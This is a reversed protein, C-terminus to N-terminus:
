AKFNYIPKIIDVIDVTDTILNTISEIPKYAMPCESLTSESVSTTYIGAKQMTEAFEEVTFKDKAGSRSFLRGAGHPASFNWDPNSKGTCILSGDRMNIPILVRQNQYAAIAGKRLIMDNPDIYNHVTDFSEVETGIHNLILNAITRRNLKAYEQTIQMDHIYNDMRYGVCPILEVPIGPTWAALKKALRDAEAQIEPAKGAAKLDNVIQKLEPEITNIRYTERMDQLAQKQYYNCIEIGLHRSGSHIVLWINRNSDRDLEIFHNGGGLTGMSKQALEKRLGAHKYCKLRTLDFNHKVLNAHVNGGSPVYTKVIDDFESLNINSEKLKIALMGCGIDIGVLNPIVSDRITMTTGIVCGKGAHCDPMIRIQSGQMSPQNLLTYIQTLTNQSVLETFIKANAYKGTLELLVGSLELM